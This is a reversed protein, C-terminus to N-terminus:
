VSQSDGGDPDVGDLAEIVMATQQLQSWLRTLNAQFIDVIEPDFQQGRGEVIQRVIEDRQMGKRYIRNTCMADYADALAFVRALLSIETGKLGFPYGSGDYREHHELVVRAAGSLTRFPKLMSYGIQPHTRMLCWEEDTFAESKNLVVDPIGLKGIDHLLAGEALDSLEDQKMGMARGLSVSMRRVNECHVRIGPEHTELITILMDTISQVDQDVAVTSSPAIEAENKGRRLSQLSVSGIHGDGSLAFVCDRGQKKAGYLARDARHMLPESELTLAEQATVASVGISVTIRLNATGRCFVHQRVRQILDDARSRAQDVDAGPMIMVLEDGGYRASVDRDGAVERMLTALEQLIIDGAPHGYTDNLSKFHDADLILIGVAEGEQRAAAWIRRIADRLGRVNHLGTLGDSLAQHQMRRFAVLVTSLHNAAHYLFLLDTEAYTVGPELGLTLLGHIEGGSVVPVTSCQSPASQGDPRDTLGEAQVMVGGDMAHGSLARYRELMHDRLLGMYSVTVPKLAYLVISPKEDEISFIGVAAAQFREALGGSLARLAEALTGSRIAVTTLQRLIRLESELHQLSFPVSRALHERGRQVEEMVRAVLEHREFPKLVFSRVGFRETQERAEPTLHGTVVVIGMWPWMKLAVELFAIGDMGSMRLDVVVVDFEQLLLAQLGERGDGAM